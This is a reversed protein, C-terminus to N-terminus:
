LRNGQLHLGAILHPHQEFEVLHQLQLVLLLAPDRSHVLIHLHRVFGGEVVEVIDVLVELLCNFIKLCFDSVLIGLEFFPASGATLDASGLLGSYFLFLLLNLVNTLDHVGLVQDFLHSVLIFPLGAYNLLYLRTDLDFVLKKLLSLSQDFSFHLQLQRDVEREGFDVALEDLALVELPVPYLGDDALSKCLLLLDSASNGLLDPLLHVLLRLAHGVNANNFLATCIVRENEISVLENNVEDATEADLDPESRAVLWM